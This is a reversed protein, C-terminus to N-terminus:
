IGEKTIGSYFANLTHIQMHKIGKNTIKKNYCDVVYFLIKIIDIDNILYKEVNVSPFGICKITKPLNDIKKHYEVWYNKKDIQENYVENIKVKIGNKGKSYGLLHKLELKKM